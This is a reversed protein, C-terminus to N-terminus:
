TWKNALPCPRRSRFVFFITANAPSPLPSPSARADRRKRRENEPRQAASFCGRTSFAARARARRECHYSRRAFGGVRRSISERDSPGKLRM